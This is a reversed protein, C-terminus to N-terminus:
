SQKVWGSKEMDNYILGRVYESINESKESLYAKQSKELTVQPTVRDGTQDTIEGAPQKIDLEVLERIYGSVTEGISLIYDVNEQHLCLKQIVPNKVVKPRGPKRKETKM